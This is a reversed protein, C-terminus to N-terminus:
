VGGVLSAFVGPGGHVAIPRARGPLASQRARCSLLHPKGAPDQEVYTLGFHRPAIRSWGGPGASKIYATPRQIQPRRAVGAAAVGSGGIIFDFM